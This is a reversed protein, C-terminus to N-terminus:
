QTQKISKKKINEINKKLEFQKYKEKRKKNM